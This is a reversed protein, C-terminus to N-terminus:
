SDLSILYKEPTKLLQGFDDESLIESLDDVEYDTKNKENPNYRITRVVKSDKNIQKLLKQGKKRGQWYFRVIVKKKTKFKSKITM